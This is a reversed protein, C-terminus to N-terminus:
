CLWPFDGNRVPLGDIEIPWRYWPQTLWLWLTPRFMTSKEAECLALPKGFFVDGFGELMKTKWCWELMKAKDNWCRWFWGNAKIFVIDMEWGEEDGYHWFTGLSSLVGLAWLSEAAWVLDSQRGIRSWGLGTLLLSSSHINSRIVWMSDCVPNGFFTPSWEIGLFDVWQPLVDLFELCRDHQRWSTTHYWSRFIPIAMLGWRHFSPIDVTNPVVLWIQNTTSRGRQFIHFDTPIM